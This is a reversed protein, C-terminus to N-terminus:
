PQSDSKQSKPRMTSEPEFPPILKFGANALRMLTEASLNVEGNHSLIEMFTPDNGSSLTFMRKMRDVAKLPKM